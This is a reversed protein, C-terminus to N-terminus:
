VIKESCKSVEGRVVRIRYEIESMKMWGRVGYVESLAEMEKKEYEVMKEIRDLEFMVDIVRM